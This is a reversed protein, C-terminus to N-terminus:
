TSGWFDLLVVQGRLDALALPTGELTTLTVEPAPSGVEVGPQLKSSMWYFGAGGLVVFLAVLGGIIKLAKMSENYGAADGPALAWIPAAPRM